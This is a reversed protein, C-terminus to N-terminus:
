VFIYIFAPLSDSISVLYILDFWGWPKNVYIEVFYKIKFTQILGISTKNKCSSVFPALSICVGVKALSAGDTEIKCVSSGWM